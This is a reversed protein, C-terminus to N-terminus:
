RVGTPRVNPMEHDALVQEGGATCCGADSCACAGGKLVSASLFREYEGSTTVGTQIVGTRLRLCPHARITKGNRCRAHTRSTESLHSTCPSTVSMHLWSSSQASTPAGSSHKALKLSRSHLRFFLLAEAYATSRQLRAAVGGRQRYRLVTSAAHIRVTWGAWFGVFTFLVLAFYLAAQIIYAALLKGSVGARGIAKINSIGVLLTWIFSLRLVLLM